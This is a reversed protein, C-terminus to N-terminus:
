GLRRMCNARASTTDWGRWRALIEDEGALALAPVTPYIAIFARYVRTMSAVRTQQLMIESVWIKYPDRTRRWPLDRAHVSYWWLLAKRFAQLHEGRLPLAKM